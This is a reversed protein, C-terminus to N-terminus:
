RKAPSGENGAYETHLINDALHEIKLECIFPRVDM